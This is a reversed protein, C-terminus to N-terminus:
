IRLEWLEKSLELIFNCSQNQTLMFKVLFKFILKYHFLFYLPDNKNYPLIKLKRSINLNEEVFILKLANFHM